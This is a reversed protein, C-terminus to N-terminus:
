GGKLITGGDRGGIGGVACREAGGVEARYLGLEGDKLGLEVGKRELM